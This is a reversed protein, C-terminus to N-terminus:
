HSLAKLSPPLEGDYWLKNEAKILRRKDIPLLYGETFREIFYEIRREHEKRDKAKVLYECDTAWHGPELCHFCALTEV